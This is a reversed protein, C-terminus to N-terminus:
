RLRPAGLKALALVHAKTTANGGDNRAFGIILTQTGVRVHIRQNGWFYAEDGVGALTEAQTGVLARVKAFTKADMPGVAINIWGGDSSRFRCETGMDGPVAQPEGASIRGGTIGEIEQPTILTCATPAAATTGSGRQTIAPAAGAHALMTATLVFASIAASM